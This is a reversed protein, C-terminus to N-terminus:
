EWIAIETELCVGHKAQVVSRMKTLLAMVDSATAGEGTEIVNAHEEAVRAAGVRFGKLGADELLRGAYDGAPNKFVSGASRKGRLWARKAAFGARREAIAGPDGAIGRFAAEVVVRSALTPCGRYRWELDKAHLICEGGDRNLCRIWSVQEGVTGGWAGANMALCGGVTGPIGQLFELGSLGNEQLMNIFKAVPVAAGAIVTDGERRLARFESGALRGVVGRLGLDGVLVNSGGGLLRLPVDCQATWDLIRSLDAISGIQVWVDASGGVRLTTKGALPENARCVSDTLREGLVSLLSGPSAPADGGVIHRHAWSGLKEVDGAGIVLLLDEAALRHGIYAWAQELGPAVMVAPASAGVEAAERVRTAAFREYLDWVTGGSLPRESAAYVPTLILADLGAFAPPFAEGLAATRTYRHPQFVAMLRRHPVGMATGILARVESPHHAYDSIVTIGDHEVVREFRRRPLAVGSLAQVIDGAGLGLELGVACAALANVVNHKGPVPLAVRGMFAGGVTLDFAASHARLEVAVARVQAAEAFGYSVNGDDLECLTRAGPDDLCYLVRRRAQEAFHRFCQRFAEESEFHEMHDFEVNTVVAIDAHYLALTGDSEDAEVVLERDAGVHAVTGPGCVEGGICWGPDRGAARLMLAIFTSTTTKGHTGGVAVSVHADLLAPLVQGRTFVPIGWEIARAVEPNDEPVAASRVVWDTGPRIHVPDHGTRVAIGQATLWEAPRGPVLDCGTVRFGRAHLLRALGAMGVGSVGILHVDTERADLLRTLVSDGTPASESM